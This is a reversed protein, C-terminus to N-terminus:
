EKGLMEEIEEDTFIPWNMIRGTAIDVEFQIYDGSGIGSREPVYGHYKLNEETSISCMDNCKANVYLKKYKRKM